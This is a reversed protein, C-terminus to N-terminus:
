IQWIKRSESYNADWCDITQSLKITIPKTITTMKM